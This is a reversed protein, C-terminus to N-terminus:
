VTIYEVNPHMQIEEETVEMVWHYEYEKGGCHEFIHVDAIHEVVQVDIKQSFVRMTHNQKHVVEEYAQWRGYGEEFTEDLRDLYCKKSTVNKYAILRRNYEHLMEVAHKSHRDPKVYILQHEHNVTVHEPVKDGDKTGCYSRWGKRHRMRHVLCVTGLALLLVLLFSLSACCAIRCRKRRRREQESPLPRRRDVTVIVAGAASDEGDKKEPLPDNAVDNYRNTLASLLAEKKGTDRQDGGLSAEAPPKENLNVQPPAM